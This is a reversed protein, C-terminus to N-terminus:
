LLQQSKLYLLQEAAHGALAAMAITLSTQKRINNINVKFSRTPQTPIRPMHSAASYTYTSLTAAEMCNQAGTQVITNVRRAKGVGSGSCTERGKGQPGHACAAAAHAPAPAAAPAAVHQAAAPPAAAPARLAAAPPAAAALWSSCMRRSSAPM